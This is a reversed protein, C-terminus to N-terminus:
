QPNREHPFFVGFRVAGDSGYIVQDAKTIDVEDFPTAIVLTKNKELDQLKVKRLQYHNMAGGRYWIPNTRRVFLAYIYPQGYADSFIVTDAKPLKEGKEYQRSIEFAELYGDNFESASQKAFINLNYQRYMCFSLLEILISFGVILKVLIDKEGHSGSLKKNLWHTRVLQLFEYGCGVIVLLVGPLALLARNSHPVDRGIIAPLFGAVMWVWGLMVVEQLMFKRRRLVYFFTLVGALLLWVFSAPLLVGWAGAGHRLTPTAGLLLFHYDFHAAVNSILKQAVEGSTVHLGFVTAQEFREGGRAYLTDKLFPLLAIVGLLGVVFFQLLYKKIHQWHSIALYAVLVPTVIKASHYTYISLVGSVMSMLLWMWTKLQNKANICLTFFLVMAVVFGLAMGSEFGIRSYHVHWPSVVLLLTAVGVLVQQYMKPTKERSFLLTSYWFWFLITSVSFLAFPLRLVWLKMGLLTTFLGTFYIAFPAKYDGFSQFSVPLFHLWEDRRTTTVAFGNYGIAAEDWTMGHPVIGLKEFRVLIGVILLLIVLVKFRM